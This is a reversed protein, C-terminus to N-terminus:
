RRRNGLEAHIARAARRGDAVAEVVTGAGRVIDGGAYVGPRAVQMTATDVEILDPRNFEKKLYKALSPEACQGVAMIVQDFAQEMTETEDYAPAFRGQADFASTCRVFSLRTPSPFQRPGWGNHIEVGAARLGAVEGALAPMEGAPELCVLSVAAAGNKKATMAADAAVSGGGIVVVRNGTRAKGKERFAALYALADTVDAQKMGPLDLRRGSWLGPALFVADYRAQLEEITFDKGLARGFLFRIGPTCLGAVEREVVEAPLRFSPIARALMGGPTESKEMVDTAYGLRALFHACSLGAPGAGVVAVRRGNAPEPHRDWGEHAAVRSCVWAQLAAIRSPEQSFDHRSCAKECLREAPCVLGCVEALPNTDRLSRVAGVFNGAEIRRLFTTVDVGAPCTTRCGPKECHQCDRALRRAGPDTLPESLDPAPVWPKGKIFKVYQKPFNRSLYLPMGRDELVRNAAGVGSVTTSIVGEGMSTSDGACYLNKWDSRARLRNFFHQKLTLKPGGVCGHPKLTYRELTGPTGVEVCLVNEKLNPFFIEELKTLIRDTEKEKLRYYEESQYFRDGPRPWQIETPAIVTLSHTGPPAISPDDISPIFVCYNHGNFNYLNDVFFEIPRAEPPVCAAKVGIYLLLTGLTPDFRQAWKMRRPKIHRPNVLKGYLNWVTANSVVSGALIETGDRLRVGYAAGQWILIEEVLTRYLIQGGFKEIAKELINPLMQPSGSPYCAGGVHNDIFMTAALLAPSETVNCCTYTGTLFDFFCMLKPDTIYKKMVAEESLVMYKLLRKVGLPYKLFIKVGEKFPIETPPYPPSIPAVVEDYFSKFEAYLARVEKDQSPFAAAMEDLFRDLDRWFTVSTGERLLNMRYISEHPIMEIEEELENIVFRCPNYGSEGFGFLMAAGVDFAIGKRRIATCCGGPIYHQEVVLVRLGRKALLAAATLGGIGAGVVVVDYRDRIVAEDLIKV